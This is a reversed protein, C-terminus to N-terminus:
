RGNRADAEGVPRGTAHPVARTPKCADDAHEDHRGDECV